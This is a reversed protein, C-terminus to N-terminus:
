LSNLLDFEKSLQMKRKSIEQVLALHNVRYWNRCRPSVKWNLADQVCSPLAKYQTATLEMVDNWGDTVVSLDEQYALTVLGMERLSEFISSASTFGCLHKSAVMEYQKKSFDGCPLERLATIAKFFVENCM